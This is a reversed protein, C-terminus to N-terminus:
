LQTQGYLRRASKQVLTGLNDCRARLQLRQGNLVTWGAPEAPMSSREEDPFKSHNAPGKAAEAHRKLVQLASSNLLQRKQERKRAPCECLNRKSQMLRMRAPQQCVSLPSKRRSRDARTHEEPGRKRQGRFCRLRRPSLRLTCCLRPLPPAAATLANTHADGSSSALVAPSSGRGM